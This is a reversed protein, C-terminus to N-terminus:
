GAATQMIHDKIIRGIANYNMSQLVKEETKADDAMREIAEKVLEYTEADATINVIAKHKGKALKAFDIEFGMLIYDKKGIYLILFPNGEAPIRNFGQNDSYEFLHILANERVYLKIREPIDQLTLGIKLNPEGEVDILEAYMGPHPIPITRTQEEMTM